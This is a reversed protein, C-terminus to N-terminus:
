DVQNCRRRELTDPVFERRFRARIPTNPRCQPAGPLDRKRRSRHAPHRHVSLANYVCSAPRTEQPQINLFIETLTRCENQTGADNIIVLSFSADRSILITTPYNQSNNVNIRFRNLAFTQQQSMDIVHAWYHYATYM